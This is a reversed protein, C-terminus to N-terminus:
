EDTWPETCDRVALFKIFDPLPDLWVCPQDPDWSLFITPTFSVEVSVFDLQILQRAEVLLMGAPSQDFVRSKLATVLNSSDSELQIRMMGQASIATLAALCAQAKKYHKKITKKLMTCVKWTMNRAQHVVEKVTRRQESSNVKNRADWWSWMLIMTEYKNEEEMSLIYNTVEKADKLDVLKLRVGELNMMQWCKSMFKCKFFIIAVM